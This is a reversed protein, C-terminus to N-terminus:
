MLIGDREIAKQKDLFSPRTKFRHIGSLRAMRLRKQKEEEPLDLVDMCDEFGVAYGNVYGSKHGKEYSREETRFSENNLKKKLQENESILLETKAQAAEHSATLEEVTRQLSKTHENQYYMFLGVFLSAISAFFHVFVLVQVLFKAKGSRDLKRALNMSLESLMYALAMAGRAAILRELIM